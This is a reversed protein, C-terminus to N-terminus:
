YLFPMFAAYIFSLPPADAYAQPMTLLVGDFSGFDILIHGLTSNILLMTSSRRRFAARAHRGYEHFQFAIFRQCDLRCRHGTELSRQRLM